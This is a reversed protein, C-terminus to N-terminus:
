SHVEDNEWQGDYKSGDSYTYVGHGQRKSYYFDGQLTMTNSKNTNRKLTISGCWVFVKCVEYKETNPYILTGKFYYTILM